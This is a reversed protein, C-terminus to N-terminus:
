HKIKTLPNKNCPHPYKFHTILTNQARIIGDDANHTMLTSYPKIEANKKFIRPENKRKLATSFFLDPLLGDLISFDFSCKKESLLPFFSKSKEPARLAGTGDAVGARLAPPVTSLDTSIHVVQGPMPLSELYVFLHM